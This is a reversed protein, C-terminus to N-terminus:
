PSYWNLLIAELSKQYVTLPGSYSTRKRICGSVPAQLREGLEALEKAGWQCMGVAHGAGYGSLVVDRGGIRRQVLVSGTRIIHLADGKDGEEFLTQNPAFTKFEAVDAVAELINRPANPALNRQIQREAAKRDLVRRM